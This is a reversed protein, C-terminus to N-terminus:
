TIGTRKELKKELRTICANECPLIRGPKILFYEPIKDAGFPPGKRQRGRGNCTENFSLWSLDRNFFRGQGM